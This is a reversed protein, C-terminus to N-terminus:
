YEPIEVPESVSGPPTGKPFFYEQGGGARTATIGFKSYTRTGVPSPGEVPYKSLDVTVTYIANPPLDGPRHIPLALKQQAEFGTRYADKTGYSGPRLGAKFLRAENKYGYHYFIAQRKAKEERERSGEQQLRKLLEATLPPPLGPALANQSLASSTGGISRSTTGVISRISTAAAVVARLAAHYSSGGTLTAVAASLGPSRSVSLGLSGQAISRSLERGNIAATFGERLTFSVGAQMGFDFASGGGFSFGILPSIGFQGTPDVQNIPNNTVYSYRNLSQPDSPDPITPDPSIWRGLQPDYYRAGHHQLGTATDLRQGTFKQSPTLDSPAIAGPLFTVLPAALAPHNSFLILVALFGIPRFFRSVSRRKQM